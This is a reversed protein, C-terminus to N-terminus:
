IFVFCVVEDKWTRAAASGSRRASGSLRSLVSFQLLASMAPASRRAISARRRALNLWQVSPCSM